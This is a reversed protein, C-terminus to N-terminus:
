DIGAIRAFTEAAQDAQEALVHAYVTSTVMADKHGLRDAVVHLPEGAALLLTAHTHRSDHLRVDPIGLKKRTRGWHQTASAPKLNSGDPKTTIFDGEGAWHEGLRLRRQMQEKRCARLVLLTGEDLTVVRADGSKTSTERRESGVQVINSRITVTRKEWDIDVWRLALLEGRRAGTFFALRYFAEWETGRTEDLLARIQETTLTQKETKIVRPKTVRDCPNSHIIGSVHWAHKLVMSLVATAYQVSRPSLGASLLDKQMAEVHTPKISQVRKAGLIRSLTNVKDQYSNITTDKLGKIRLSPLWIERMYSDLNAREPQSLLGQNRKALADTKAKFADRQTRYGGKWMQKGDVRIAYSWTKGRKVTGPYTNRKVGSM